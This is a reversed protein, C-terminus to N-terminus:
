KLYTMKQVKRTNGVKVAYFYQGAAMSKGSNNSGNWVIETLGEELNGDILTKILRGRIDFVSVKVNASNSLVIPFRNTGNFPNPYNKGWFFSNDVMEFGAGEILSINIQNVNYEGNSFYLKFVHQGKTLEVDGLNLWQWNDWEGTNPISINSFQSTGNLFVHIQGIDNPSAVRLSMRYTGDIQVNVTYNVWEGNEIEGICYKPGQTDDSLYIDVGDNRYVWGDNWSTFNGTSLHYDAVVNDYYAFNNRGMDFDVASIKGPIQHNVYPKTENTQVQRIMADPVDKHYECNEFKANEALELLGNLAVQQAPQNGAGNWYDLLRQYGESKLIGNVASVSELKKYTWWAWGVDNDEFVRIADRFWVNSNEGFEGCWLPVNLNNRLPLIWNLSGADNYSWYKHFSYVMNNDWPPALGTFDNAFWNGEIFIIHTTDVQRIANTIDIYLNRLLVGGPLDWNVENILDYGGIWPEDSYREALKRWLAVTKARNEASEWLSPKSPNYDSIGSEYGQGGPAAHLDLILYMNNAECWSLLSDTIQFGIELWTNGGQVPEEEIPLTYLNYHMPLRISNFGWAALSDIDIKRCYNALWADYFAQCGEAGVTETIKAKLQYQASAFSSTQMMYGEQLMWGGLGMGRLIVEEGNENVIRQNDTRLFGQSFGTNYIISLLIIWFLLYRKM